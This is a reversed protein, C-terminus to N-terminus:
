ATARLSEGCRKVYEAGIFRCNERWLVYLLADGGDRAAGKLRAELEFGFHENFRRSATNSEEVCATIRRLGLQKFPYMTAFVLLKRTLWNVGPKGAVHGWCNHGNIAEYYFGGLPESDADVMGISHGPGFGVECGVARAIFHSVRPDDIVLRSM